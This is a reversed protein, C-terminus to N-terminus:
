EKEQNDGGLERFKETMTPNGKTLKKITLDEAKQNAIRLHEESKLLNDKVNQLSKISKDIENIADKFRDSANLYRKGFALKFSELENEFNTIDINQNKVRNLEAKYKMSNQAANRLLTIMPIFFQPRIVYMKPYLYSVDVIGTNYLENDAELLTVMVAYECNKKKRDEDLKKFFSDIKQKKGTDDAENKMEFMISIVENGEPDNERFVYDGKTGGATDNDKQFYVGPFATARIKNFEIECHQELTEGIMKTSLRAKMDKYREILEDKLKLEEEKVKIEEAMKEKYKTELNALQAEKLKQETDLLNALRNREQEVESVAQTIALEKETEYALLRANLTSLENDKLSKLSMLENEKEGKLTIIEKEKAVIEEKLLSQIEQKALAVASEKEKNLAAERKKLEEEFEHNRVQNLIDAYGAEDIKFAKKCHPCIIENM